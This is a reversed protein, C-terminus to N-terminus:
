QGFLGDCEPCPDDVRGGGRPVPSPPRPPPPPQQQRVYANDNDLCHFLVTWRAESHGRCNPYAEVKIQQWGHSIDFEHEGSSSVCGTDYTHGGYTLVIRDETWMMNWKFKMRGVYGDTGFTVTEPGNVSANYKKGCIKRLRQRVTGSQGSRDQVPEPQSAPQPPAQPQPHPPPQPQPQPQPRPEPREVVREPASYVVLNIVGNKAVQMGQPMSQQQVKGEMGSSPAPPGQQVQVNIGSRELKSRAESVTLGTVDPVTVSQVAPGVITLVAQQGAQIASGSAPQQSEVAGEPMGQTAPKGLRVSANVGMRDLTAKAQGLTQGRLNPMKPMVPPPTYVRVTVRDGKKLPQGAEPEQDQILGSKDEGPAVDGAVAVIGLGKVDLRAKAEQLTKGRVDPSYIPPPPKYRGQCHAISKSALMALVYERLTCHNISDLIDARGWVYVEPSPGAADPQYNDEIFGTGARGTVVGWKTYKLSYGENVNDPPEAISVWERILAAVKPHDPNIENPKGPDAGAETGSVAPQPAADADSDSPTGGDDGYRPGFEGVVKGELDQMSQIWPDEALASSSCCLLGYMLFILRLRVM